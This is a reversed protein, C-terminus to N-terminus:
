RSVNVVVGGNKFVIVRSVSHGPTDVVGQAMEAAQEVTIKGSNGAGLEVM